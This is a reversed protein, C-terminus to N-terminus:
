LAMLNEMGGMTAKMYNKGGAISLTLNLGPVFRKNLINDGNPIFANPIPKIEVLITDINSICENDSVTM